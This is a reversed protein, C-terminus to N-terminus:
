PYYGLVDLIFDTSGGGCFVTVLGSANVASTANNAITMGTTFWNINSTGPFGTGTSFVTLYGVGSTNTITLNLLAASVGAPFGSAATLGIDRTQGASLPGAGSRSDYARQSSPLIVLSGSMKAWKPNSGSNSAYCYYLHNKVAVIDGVFGTTPISTPAPSQTLKAIAGAANTCIAELAVDGQASVGPAGFGGIGQVGVAGHTSGLGLIGPNGLANVGAGALNNNTVALADGSSGTMTLSTAGPASNAVGINFVAGTGTGAAAPDARLLDAAAGSAIAAAGIAGIRLMRRRSTTQDPEIDGREGEGAVAQEDM